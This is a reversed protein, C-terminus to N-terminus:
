GNTQKMQLKMQCILWSGFNYLLVKYRNHVVFPRVGDMM